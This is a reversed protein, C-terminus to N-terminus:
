LTIETRGFSRIKVEGTAVDLLMTRAYNAGTDEKLLRIREARLIKKVSEANRAGINGVSSSSPVDFMRAGGAIKAIIRDRRGGFVEMKKITARLGSDAFKYIQGATNGQAEPLMIHVLAGLRIVPDYLSIGVCSGLAYTILIGENRVYKMDGIGIVLQQSSM